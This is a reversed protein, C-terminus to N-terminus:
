FPSASSGVWLSAISKAGFCPSPDAYPGHTLALNGLSFLALTYILVRKRGIRDALYGCGLAGFVMGVSTAAGVTGLQVPTLQWEAKLLPMIFSLIAVDMADFLWATGVVLLLRYKTLM